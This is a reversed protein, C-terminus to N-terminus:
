SESNIEKELIEKVEEDSLNDLENVLDLLDSSGRSQKTIEIKESNSKKQILNLQIVLKAITPYEFLTKLSIEKGLSSKIRSVYQTALLSHGGLEFFNDHIGMKQIGLLEMGIQAIIKETENRPEVYEVKTTKNSVDPVPLAKYDIKKSPSLPFEDLLVFTVPVMYEPLKTRIFARLDGLDVSEKNSSIMYAVIQTIGPSDERAIAITENIIPYSSIVSEIEGLEIRFGRLKIQNDVRGIFEIEGSQMYKVLDGSRYMRSGHVSAFPNPIFNEASLEPKNHYGRALGIGSIYLEGPIGEPLPNLNGDLIYMAFNTISKGIPPNVLCDDPCIFMSACVTTETPGYANVFQRNKSWKNVLESSCKEGAVIITELNDLEKAYKNPIVSLVSPPLTITSIDLSKMVKVLEEGSSIIEQTVLNLSAGNLLAMVTEWVFADFSLSSFQLVNSKNTIRFEKQQEYALNILGEHHLLTGKPNGTSGSTYIVYALNNPRIVIRVDAIDEHEIADLDSDILIIKGVFNDLRLKKKTM